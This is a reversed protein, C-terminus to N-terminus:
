YKIITRQRLKGIKIPLYNQYVGLILISFLNLNHRNQDNAYTLHCNTLYCNHHHKPPNGYAIQSAAGAM